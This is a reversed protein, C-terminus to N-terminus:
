GAQDQPREAALGILVIPVRPTSRGHRLLDYLVGEYFPAGSPLHTQLEKMPVAEIAVDILDGVYFAMHKVFLDYAVFAYKGLQVELAIRQKVFDTQNYSYIPTEGAAEIERKQEAASLGLTRRILRHDRTVWYSTRSETWGKPVLREAFQENLAIPSYLVKGAKSKSKEQSQKVRCAEADIAQVVEEIDQWVEPKHVLIHEHGNLHSYMEAIRM